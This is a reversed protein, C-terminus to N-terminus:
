SSDIDVYCRSTHVPRMGSVTLPLALILYGGRLVHHSEVMSALRETQLASKSSCNISWLKSYPLAVSRHPTAYVLQRIMVDLSWSRSRFFFFQCILAPSSSIDPDYVWKKSARNFLEQHMTSIRVGNSLMYMSMNIVLCGSIAHMIELQLTGTNM